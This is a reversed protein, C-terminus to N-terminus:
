FIVGVPDTLEFRLPQYSHPFLSKLPSLPNKRLLFRTQISGLSSFLRTSSIAHRLFASIDSLSLSLSASSSSSNGQGAERRGEERRGQKNRKGLCALLSRLLFASLCVSSELASKKIRISPVCLLCICTRERRGGGYFRSSSADKLLNNHEGSHFYRWTHLCDGPGTQKRQNSNTSLTRKSANM